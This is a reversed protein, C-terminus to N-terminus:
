LFAGISGQAMDAKVLQGGPVDLAKDVISPLIPDASLSGPGSRLLQSLGQSLVHLLQERHLRDFPVKGGLRDAIVM